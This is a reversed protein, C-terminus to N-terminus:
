ISKELVENNKHNNHNTFFIYITLVICCFLALYFLTHLTNPVIGNMIPLFSHTNGFMHHYREVKEAAGIGFLYPIWWSFIAGLLLCSPHIVLWLKIWTPYRKGVFIIIIGMLILIQVVGIATVTLTQSFSQEEAIAKIDNLSGLSVLDQTVMFLLIFAYISILLKEANRINRELVEGVM